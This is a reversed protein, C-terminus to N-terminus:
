AYMFWAFWAVAAAGTWIWARPVSRQARWVMELADTSEPNSVQRLYNDRQWSTLAVWGWCGAAVWGIAVSLWYFENMTM